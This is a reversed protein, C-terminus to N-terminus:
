LEFQKLRWYILSVIGSSTTWSLWTLLQAMMTMLCALSVMLSRTQLSSTSCGLTLSLTLSTKPYLGQLSPPFWATDVSPSTCSAKSCPTSLGEKSYPSTMMLSAQGDITLTLPVKEAKRRISHLSSGSRLANMRSTRMLPWALLGTLIVIGAISKRMTMRRLMTAPLCAQPVTPLRVWICGLIRGQPTSPLTRITMSPIGRLSSQSMPAKM